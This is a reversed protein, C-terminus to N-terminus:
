RVNYVKQPKAVKQSLPCPKVQWERPFIGLYKGIPGVYIESLDFYLKIRLFYKENMGFVDWADCFFDGIVVAIGHTGFM